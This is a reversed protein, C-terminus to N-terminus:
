CTFENVFMCSCLSKCVYWYIKCLTFMGLEYYIHQQVDNDETYDFLKIKECAFLVDYLCEGKHYYHKTSAHM